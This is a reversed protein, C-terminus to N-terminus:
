ARRQLLAFYGEREPSGVSPLYGALPQGSPPVFRCCILLRRGFAPFRGFLFVSREDRRLSIAVRSDRKVVEEGAFVAPAAGDHDAGAGISRQPDGIHIAVHDLM